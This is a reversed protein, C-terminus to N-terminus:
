YVLVMLGERSKWEFSVPLEKKLLAAPDHVEGSALNLILPDTRGNRRYAKMVCTPFVEGKM